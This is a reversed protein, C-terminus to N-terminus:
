ERRRQLTRGGNPLDIVEYLDWDIQPARQGGPEVYRARVQSVITVPQLRAQEEAAVLQVRIAAPMQRSNGWTPTWEVEDRDNPGEPEGRYAFEVKGLKDAVILSDERPRVPDFLLRLYRGSRESGRVFRGVSRSGLYPSETLVLRLGETTRMTNLEVIRLGGRVGEYMSYSSVFRMQDPEGHFFPAEAVGVERRPRAVVPVVGAFHAHLMQNLSSVRRDLTLRERVQTWSGTAMTLATTMGVALLALMSVSVLVEILTLGARPDRPRSDATRREATRFSSHAPSAPQQLRSPVTWVRQTAEPAVFGQHSLGRTQGRSQGDHQPQSFASIM